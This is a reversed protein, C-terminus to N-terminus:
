FLTLQHTRPASPQLARIAAAIDPRAAALGRGDAAESRAGARGDGADRAALRYAARARALRSRMAGPTTGLAVAMEAPTMASRLLLAQRHEVPLRQVIAWAERLAGDFILAGIAARAPDGDDAAALQERRLREGARQASWRRRRADIALRGVMTGLWAVLREETALRAAGVTTRARLFAEQLVDEVEVAGEGEAGNLVRGAIRRLRGDHRILAEALEQDSWVRGSPQITPGAAPPTSAGLTAVASM